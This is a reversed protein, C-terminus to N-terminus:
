RPGLATLGEAFTELESRVVAGIRVAGGTEFSQFPSPGTSSGFAGSQPSRYFQLLDLRSHIWPEQLVELAHQLEHAMLSVLELPEMAAQIRIWLYRFDRSGHILHLLCGRLGPVPCRGTQIYVIGNTQGIDDVLRKLTPSREYGELLLVTVDAQESRVALRLSDQRPGEQAHCIGLGAVALVWGLVAFRRRASPGM